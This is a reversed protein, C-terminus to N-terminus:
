LDMGLGVALGECGIRHPSDDVRPRRAEICYAFRASELEASDGARPSRQLKAAVQECDKGRQAYRRECSIACILTTM